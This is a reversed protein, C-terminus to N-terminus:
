QRQTFIFPYSFEFEGGLSPFRWSRIRGLLCETVGPDHLTDLEADAATVKGISSIGFRVQLKGGLATSSHRMGSEYCARLGGLRHKIETTILQVNPPVKGGFDTPRTDKIEIEKEATRDGLKVSPAVPGPKLEGGRRLTGAKGDGRVMPRGDASATSVGGINKFVENADAYTNGRTLMDVADGGEGDGRHTLINIMGTGRVQRVLDDHSLVPRPPAHRSPVGGGVAVRDPAPAPKPAVKPKPPEFRAPRWVVRPAEALDRKPFDLTRLYGVCGFHAGLSVVLVAALLWDIRKVFPSRVSSPLRPRPVRAPVAVRQFLVTVDGLVLKGRARAGLSVTGEAGLIRAGEGDSIRGQCGEPVCVRWGAGDPEFLVISRPLAQSGPVAFTARASQGITIAKRERVMREEFIRGGLIVGVRLGEIESM